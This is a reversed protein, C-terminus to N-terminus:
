LRAQLVYFLLFTTKTIKAAFCHEIILCIKSVEGRGLVFCFDLVSEKGARRFSSFLGTVWGLIYPGGRSTKSVKGVQM